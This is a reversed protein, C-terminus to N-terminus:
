TPRQGAIQLRVCIREVQPVRELLRSRRSLSFVLAAVDKKAGELVKSNRM